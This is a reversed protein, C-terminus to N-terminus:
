SDEGSLGRGVAQFIEKHELAPEQIYLQGDQFVQFVRGTKPNKNLETFDGKGYPVVSEYAKPFM